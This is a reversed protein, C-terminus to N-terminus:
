TTGLFLNWSHVMLQKEQLFTFKTKYIQDSSRRFLLCQLFRCLRALPTRRAPPHSKAPLLQRLPLARLGLSQAWPLFGSWPELDGNCWFVCPSSSIRHRHLSTVFSWFLGLARHPHIWCSLPVPLVRGGSTGECFRVSLCAAGKGLVSPNRPYESWGAKTRVFMKGDESDMRVSM